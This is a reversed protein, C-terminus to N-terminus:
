QIIPSPPVGIAKGPIRGCPRATSHQASVALKVANRNPCALIHIILGQLTSVHLLDYRDSTRAPVNASIM